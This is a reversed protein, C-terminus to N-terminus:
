KEKKRNEFSRVWQHNKSEPYMSSLGTLDLSGIAEKPYELSYM